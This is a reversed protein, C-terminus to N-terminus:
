DKKIIESVYNIDGIYFINQFNNRWVLQIEHDYIQWDKFLEPYGKKLRRFFGASKDRSWIILPYTERLIPLCYNLDLFNDVKDLIKKSDTRFDKYIYYRSCVRVVNDSMVQCGSAQIPKDNDDFVFTFIDMKNLRMTDPSYNKELRDGKCEEYMQHLAFECLETEINTYSSNQIYPIIRM